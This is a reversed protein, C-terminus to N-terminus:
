LIFLCIGCKWMWRKFHLYRFVFIIIYGFREM